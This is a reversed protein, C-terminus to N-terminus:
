IRIKQCFLTIIIVDTILLNRFIEPFILIFKRFNESIKRRFNEFECGVWLSTVWKSDFIELEQEMETYLKNVDDVFILEIM